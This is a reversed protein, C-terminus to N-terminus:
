LGFGSSACAVTNKVVVTASLESFICWVSGFAACFRGVRRLTALDTVLFLVNVRYPALLTAAQLFASVALHKNVVLLIFFKTLKRANKFWDISVEDNFRAVATRGFPLFNQQADYFPVMQTSSSTVFRNRRNPKGKQPTTLM